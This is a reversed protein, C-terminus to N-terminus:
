YVCYWLRFHASQLMLLSASGTLYGLRIAVPAQILLRTMVLYLPVLSTVFRGISEMNKPAHTFYVLGLTMLCFLAEEASLWRRVCGIALLLLGALWLGKNQLNWPYSAPDRLEGSVVFGWAPRLSLMEQWRQLFVDGPMKYNWDLQGSAFLLPDGFAVYLYSMYAWLGWASAAAFAMSKLVRQLPPEHRYRLLLHVFLVACALVGTPRTATILGTVVVLMAPRWRQAFGYFLVVLLFMYLSETYAMRMFYSAPWLMILALGWHAAQPQPSAIRSSCYRMWMACFGWAALWSVVLLPVQGYLPTLADVLRGLLPYLPFFVLSGRDGGLTAHYGHQAIYQYWQGDWNSLWNSYGFLHGSCRGPPLVKALGYGGALVIGGGLAFLILPMWRLPLAAPRETSQLALM